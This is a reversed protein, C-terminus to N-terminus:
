PEEKLTDILRSIDQYLRWMTRVIGLTSLIGVAALALRLPTRTGLLLGISSGGVAVAVLTALKLVETQFKVRETKQDAMIFVHM